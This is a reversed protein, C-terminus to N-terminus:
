GAVLAMEQRRQLLSFFVSGLGRWAKSAAAVWFEPSKNERTLSPKTHSCGNISLVINMVSGATGLARINPRPELSYELLMGRFSLLSKVRHKMIGFDLLRFCPKGLLTNVNKRTYSKVWPFAFRAFLNLWFNFFSTLKPYNEAKPRCYWLFYGM